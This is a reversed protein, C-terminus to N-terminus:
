TDFSVRCIMNNVNFMIENKTMNIITVNIRKHVHFHRHIKYAILQVFSVNENESRCIKNQIPEPVQNLDRYSMDLIKRNKDLNHEGYNGFIACYEIYDVIIIRDALQTYANYRDLVLKDDRTFNELM